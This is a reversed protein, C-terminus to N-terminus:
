LPCIKSLDQLRALLVKPFASKDRAPPAKEEGRPKWISQEWHASFHHRCLLHMQEWPWRRELKRWGSVAGWPLARNTEATVASIKPEEQQGHAKQLADPPLLHQLDPNPSQNSVRVAPPDDWRLAKVNKLPKQFTPTMATPSVEPIQANGNSSVALIVILIGFALM